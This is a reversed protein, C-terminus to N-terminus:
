KIKVRRQYENVAAVILEGVEVSFAYGREDSVVYNGKLDFIEKKVYSLVWPRPHRDFITPYPAESCAMSDIDLADKALQFAETKGNFGALFVTKPLHPVSAGMVKDAFSKKLSDPCVLSVDRGLFYLREEDWSVKRLSDLYKLLSQVASQFGGGSKLINELLDRDYKRFDSFRVKEIDNSDTM